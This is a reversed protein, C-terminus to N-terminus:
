GPPDQLPAAPAKPQAIDTLAQVVEMYAAVESGNLNARALFALANKAQAPTM